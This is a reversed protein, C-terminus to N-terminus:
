VEEEEIQKRWSLYYIGRSLYDSSAKKGKLNPKKPKKNPKTQKLSNLGSMAEKNFSQM